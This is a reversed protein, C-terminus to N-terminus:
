IQELIPCIDRIFTAKQRTIKENKGVYKGSGILWLLRDIVAPPEGNVRAMRVMTQFVSYNDQSSVGVGVLIDITHTDPKCYNSYGIEKLWDCAIPFGMRGKDFCIATENQDQIVKYFDVDYGVAPELEKKPLLKDKFYIFIDELIEDLMDDQCIINNWWFRMLDQISVRLVHCEAFSDYDGECILEILRNSWAEAKFLNNRCVRNHNHEYSISRGGIMDQWTIGHKKIENLILAEIQDDTM